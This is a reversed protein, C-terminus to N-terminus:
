TRRVVSGDLKRKWVSKYKTERPLVHKRRISYTESKEELDRATKPKCCNRCAPALNTERNEGGNIIAKKHDCEWYEGARIKRTCLYCREGHKDLVRLRVRQPPVEDDNKGRWEEVSRAM